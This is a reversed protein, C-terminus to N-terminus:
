NRQDSEYDLQMLAFSVKILRVGKKAILEKWGKIQEDDDKVKGEWVRLRRRCEQVGMSCGPIMIKGDVDVRALRM